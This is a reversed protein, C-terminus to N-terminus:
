AYWSQYHRSDDGCPTASGHGMSLGYATIIKRVAPKDSAFQDRAPMITNSMFGESGPVVRGGIPRIWVASGKRAVVQFFDVNTQDYGWSYCLLTGVQIQEAMAAKRQDREAQRQIKFREGADQSAKERDLWQQRHEATRFSYRKPRKSKGYWITIGPRGSHFASPAAEDFTYRIGKYAIADAPPPQDLLRSYRSM